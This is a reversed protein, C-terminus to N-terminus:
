GLSFGAHFRQSGHTVAVEGAKDGAGAATRQRLFAVVEDIFVPVDDVLEAPDSGAPDISGRVRQRWSRLLQEKEVAIVEALSGPAMALFQTSHGGPAVRRISGRAADTM